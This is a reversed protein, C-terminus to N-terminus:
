TIYCKGDDVYNSDDKPYFPPPPLLFRGNRTAFNDFVTRVNDLFERVTEEEGIQGNVVILSILIISVASQTKRVM